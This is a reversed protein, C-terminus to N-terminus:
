LRKFDKAATGINREAVGDGTAEAITEALDCEIVKGVAFVENANILIHAAAVDVDNL